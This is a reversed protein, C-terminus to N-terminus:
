LVKNPLAKSTNSFKLSKTPLIPKSNSYNDELCILLRTRKTQWKLLAIHEKGKLQEIVNKSNMVNLM